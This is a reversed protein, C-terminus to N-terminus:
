RFVIHRLIYFNIIMFMIDVMAKTLALNLFSLYSLFESIFNIILGGVLANIIAIIVYKFVSWNSNTGSNFIFTRLLIYNFAM